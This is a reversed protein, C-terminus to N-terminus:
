NNSIYKIAKELFPISDDFYGLALNCHNCLLGRVKNTKHDHDVYLGRKLFNKRGCIACVGNQKELLENYNKLSIGYKKQLLKDQGKESFQYKRQSQKQKGSAKYKAQYKKYDDTQRYKKLYEKYADTKRYNRAKENLIEQKEKDHIYIM